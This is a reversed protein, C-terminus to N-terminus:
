QFLAKHFLVIIFFVHAAEFLRYSLSPTKQPRFQWFDLMMDLFAKGRKQEYRARLYALVFLLMTVLVLGQQAARASLTTEPLGGFYLAILHLGGEALTLLLGVAGTVLMLRAAANTRILSKVNTRSLTRM